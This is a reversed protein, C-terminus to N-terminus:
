AATGRTRYKWWAWVLTAVGLLFVSGGTTWRGRFGVLMLGLSAAFLGLNITVVLSWFVRRLEPDAASEDPVDVGFSPDDADPEVDPEGYTDAFPEDPEDPWRDELM